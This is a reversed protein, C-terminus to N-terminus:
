RLAALVAAHLTGNSAVVEPGTCSPVDGFDTMRGGAERVVLAPAALDWLTPGVEVM